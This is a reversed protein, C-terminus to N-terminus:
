RGAPPAAIIPKAQGPDVTPRLDRDEPMATLEKPELLGLDEGPSPLPDEQAIPEPQPEVKTEQPPAPAPEEEVVADKAACAALVLPLFLAAAKM